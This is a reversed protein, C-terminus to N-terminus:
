PALWTITAAEQAAAPRWCKQWPLSSTCSCVCPLPGALLVCLSTPWPVVTGQCAGAHAAPLDMLYIAGKGWIEGSGALSQMDGTLGLFLVLKKVRVCVHSSVHLHVGVINDIM